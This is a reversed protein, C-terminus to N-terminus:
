QALGEGLRAIINDAFEDARLEYDAIQQRQEDTLVPAIRGYLKMREVALDAEASAVTASAARVSAETASGSQITERLGKRADHLRGLLTALTDKEGSLVIKIQAKQDDTLHLRAAIRKFTQGRLTTTAPSNEAAFSSAFLGGVAIMAITPLLLIKKTNM